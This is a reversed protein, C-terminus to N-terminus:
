MTECETMASATALRKSQGILCGEGVFENPGILAVVAEKGHRSLVAVKVKGKKIYFVADADDGQAFIVDKKRFRESIDRGIGATALFVVPDFPLVGATKGNKSRKIPKSRLARSM